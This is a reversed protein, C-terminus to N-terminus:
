YLAVMMLIEDFHLKNEYFYIEMLYKSFQASPTTGTNYLWKGGYGYKGRVKAFLPSMAIYYDGGWNHQSTLVFYDSGFPANINFFFMYCIILSGGCLPSRGISITRDTREFCM